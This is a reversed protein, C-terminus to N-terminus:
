RAAQTVVVVAWSRCTALGYGAALLSVTLAHMILLGGFAIALTEFHLPNPESFAALLNFRCDDYGYCLAQLISSPWSTSPM